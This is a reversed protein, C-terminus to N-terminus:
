QLRHLYENNSENQKQKVEKNKYNECFKVNACSTLFLISLLILYKPM